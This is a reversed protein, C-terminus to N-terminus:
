GPHRRLRVALAANRQAFREWEPPTGALRDRASQEGCIRLTWTAMRGARIGFGVLVGDAWGYVDADNAAVSTVKQEAVVWAVAASEAQLRGALEFADRAAAEDRRRALRSEVDAIAVPERELVAIVQQVLLDRDAPMVGRAQALDRDAGGLGRSTYAIPYIRNLAAAALRTQTGGLYPGFYRAVGVEDVAAHVFTVGISNEALDLRLFGASEGGRTRNWRPLTRELLNRELWAAEHHSDCVVVEVADIREVM